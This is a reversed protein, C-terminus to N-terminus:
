ITSVSGRVTIASRLADVSDITYKNQELWQQVQQLQTDNLAYRQVIQQPTLFQHFTPSGLQYIQALDQEMLADNYSLNFTLTKIENGSM